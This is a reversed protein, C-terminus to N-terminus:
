LLLAGTQGREHRMPNCEQGTSIFCTKRVEVWRDFKSLIVASSLFQSSSFLTLSSLCTSSMWEKASPFGSQM